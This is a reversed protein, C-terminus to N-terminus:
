NIILLTSVLTLFGGLVFAGAIAVYNLKLQMRGASNKIAVSIESMSHAAFGMNKIEVSLLNSQLAIGEKMKELKKAEQAIGDVVNQFDIISESQMRAFDDVDVRIKIEKEIRELVNNFIKQTNSVDLINSIKLLEDRVEEFEKTTETYNQAFLKQISVLEDLSTLRELNKEFSEVVNEATANLYNFAMLADEVNKIDSIKIGNIEM